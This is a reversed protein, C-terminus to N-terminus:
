SHKERSLLKLFLNVTLATILIIFYPSTVAMPFPFSLRGSISARELYVLVLCILIHLVCFLLGQKKKMSLLVATLLIVLVTVCVYPVIRRLQLVTVWSILQHTYPYNQEMPIFYFILAAFVCFVVESLLWKKM